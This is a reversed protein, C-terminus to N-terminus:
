RRQSPERREDTEAVFIMKFNSATLSPEQNGRRRPRGDKARALEAAQANPLYQLVSAVELVKTKTKGSVNVSGSTVRSVTAISVGALRAVDRITCPAPGGSGLASNGDKSAWFGLDTDRDSQRDDFQTM